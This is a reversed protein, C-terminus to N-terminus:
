MDQLQYLGLLDVVATEVQFLQAFVSDDGVFGHAQESQVGAVLQRHLILLFHGLEQGVLNEIQVVGGTGGQNPGHQAVVLRLRM